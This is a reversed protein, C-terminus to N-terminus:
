ENNIKEIVVINNFIQENKFFKSNAEIYNINYEKFLAKNGLYSKFDVTVIKNNKKLGNLKSIFKSSDFYRLGLSITLTLLGNIAVMFFLGKLYLNINRYRKISLLFFLPVLWFYPTYRLWWGGKNLLLLFFIVLIYLEYISLKFKERLRYISIMYIFFSTLLIGGWLVGFSGVRPAGNRLKQLENFSFTFPIKIQSDDRNGISAFNTLILRSIKNKDKIVTPIYEDIFDVKGAGMVPYFPHGNSITNKLYPAVLFPITIFSLLIIKKLLVVLNLKETFLEYLLIISLIFFGFVLGTFKVNILILFGFVFDYYYKKERKSLLYSFILIVSLGYLFGDVLNTMLQTLLVPNLAIISAIFIANKFNEKKSFYRFPYLFSLVLIILNLFKIGTIRDTISYFITAIIEYSKPYHNVWLSQNNSNDITEYIPNWGNSLQIIIEQHYAQGDFTLDIYFKSLYIMLSIFGLLIFNILIVDKKLGIISNSFILSLTLIIFSYTINLKFKFIFFLSTFVFLLAIFFFILRSFRNIYSVKM